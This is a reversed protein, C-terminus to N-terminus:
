PGLAGRLDVALGVAYCIQRFITAAEDGAIGLM